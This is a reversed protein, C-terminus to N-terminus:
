GPVRRGIVALCDSRIVFAALVRARLPQDLALDPAEECVLGLTLVDADVALDDGPIIREWEEASATAPIAIHGRHASRM